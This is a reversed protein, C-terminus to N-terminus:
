HSPIWLIGFWSVRTRDRDLTLLEMRCSALHDIDAFETDALSREREAAAADRAAEMERYSQMRLRAGDKARSLKDTEGRESLWRIERASMELEERLGDLRRQWIAAEVSRPGADADRLREAALRLRTALRERFAELPEGPEGHLSLPPCVPVSVRGTAALEDAFRERLREVKARRDLWAPLLDFATGPEAAPELWAEPVEVGPGPFRVASPLYPLPYVVRTLLDGGVSKGADNRWMLRARCLLAPQYTVTGTSAAIPGLGVAERAAPDRLWERGLFRADVGEPTGGVLASALEPRPDPPRTRPSAASLETGRGPPRPTARRDSMPGSRGLPGLRPDTTLNYFGASEAREIEHRTLPGRLNSMCFRTKLVPQEDTHANSLVFQRGELGAVRRSLAGRDLAKGHGSAAATLGDLIRELDQETQLKGVFWTGANTLAKYDVDVPNQTALLTGLGFARAQKLLTLLPRKSPPNLPHPPLYGTVEDMYVLARLEGSGPQTRMWAVIRELLLTVFSMRESDSLHAITFISTRSGADNRAFLQDIDLPAGTLWQAFAPSAILGNLRMALQQRAKKPFFQELEFVGLRDFPPDSVARILDALEIAHGREWAHTLINAILISERSRLPDADVDILGLLAAVLGSVLEAREEGPMQAYDGPPDFRDLLSVPVGASSGPTYITINTRERLRRIDAEGLGSGELGRRWLAARAAGAKSADGGAAEAASPDLWETFHSADLDPWSLALNTLDGKPDIAITPIDHLAAEELLGVCLGTKGSGTMGFVLGHTTLHKPEYLVREDTTGGAETDVAKGLYFAM